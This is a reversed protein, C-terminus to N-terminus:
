KASRLGDQFPNYDIFAQAMAWRVTAESLDFLEIREAERRIAIELAAGILNVARGIVGESIAFLCKVIRIDDLQSLSQLIGREVLESDLRRLFQRFITRDTGSKIDLPDLDCPPVLRNSLQKNRQFMELADNTGIFIVPVVGDDLFRKLTDTVDNRESSRFNLHQVEDIFLLQVGLVRLLMYARKKLTDETGRDYFDDGLERLIGSFLRKSTCARELAVIVVPRSGARHEQRAEIVRQYQRALSTKGSGTPALSRGGQQHQGPTALATLRLEEAMHMVAHDRPMTIYIGRYRKKAEVVRNATDPSLTPSNRGAVPLFDDRTFWASSTIGSM